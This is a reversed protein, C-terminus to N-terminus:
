VFHNQNLNYMHRTVKYLFRIVEDTLNRILNPREESFKFFLFFFNSTSQYDILNHM